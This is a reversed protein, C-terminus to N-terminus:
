SIILTDPNSMYIWYGYYSVTYNLDQNSPYLTTNWTWQKWQDGTDSANYLYVYHFNPIIQGFTDNIKRVTRSPYGVLNWGPILNMLSPTALTNNIYFDTVTDLYIWYGEKRSLDTLDHVVWSPLNPNYTKWPDSADAPTYYRISQYRNNLDALFIDISVDDSICPFSVLNWGQEFTMNCFTENESIIVLRTSILGYGTISPKGTIENFNLYVYSFMILVTLISLAIAQRKTM